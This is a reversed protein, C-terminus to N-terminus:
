SPTPKSIISACSVFLGLYKLNPVFGELNSTIVSLKKKPFCLFWGLECNTLPELPLISILELANWKSVLFLIIFILPEIVAEVAIIPLDSPGWTLKSPVLILILEDTNINPSLPVEKTLPLLPWNSILELANWKSVFFLTNFKLPEIVADLAKIPFGAPGLTLKSPVFITISVGFKSTVLPPLTLIAPVIVAVAPVIPPNLIPESKSALEPVKFNFPAVPCIVAEAACILPFTVAVDPWIAPHFITPLTREPEM